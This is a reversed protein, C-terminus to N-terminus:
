GQARCFHLCTGSPPPLSPVKTWVKGLINSLIFGGVLQSSPASLSSKLFVCSLAMGLRRHVNHSFTFLTPQQRRRWRRWSAVAVRNELYLWSLFMTTNLFRHRPFYAAPESNKTLAQSFSACSKNKRSWVIYYRLRGESTALKVCM